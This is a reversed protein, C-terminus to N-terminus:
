VVATHQPVRASRDESLFHFLCLIIPHLNDSGRRSVCGTFCQCTYTVSSPVTVVVHPRGAIVQGYTCVRSGLVKASLKHQVPFQLISSCSALIVDVQPPGTSVKILIRKFKLGSWQPVLKRWFTFSSVLKAAKFPCYMCWLKHSKLINCLITHWIEKTKKKTRHWQEGTINKNTSNKKRKQKLIEQFVPWKLSFSCEQMFNFNCVYTRVYM